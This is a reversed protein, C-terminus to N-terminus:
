EATTAMHERLQMSVDGNVASIDITGSGDGLRGTVHQEMRAEDRLIIDCHVDGRLTSLSVRCDSGDAIAVVTDGNVTRVNVNGRVPETLDLRVDGSISEVAVTKGACERLAVDGNATRANINGRIRQFVIDGSKGEMALTTVECDAVRVDGSSNQIEVIGTLGSLDVDGSHSLVKCAAGTNSVHLDGHMVKVDLPVVGALRIDLDIMIGPTDHQRLVVEHDSEDVMLTFADANERADEEDSGQIRVTASIQGHDHGGTIRVDGNPNEVRFTKGEPVNLPLMIERTEYAAGWIFAAKGKRINDIGSRLGEVGKRAGDRVQKAVDDWNVNKTVDKTVDEVWDVFGKLPDKVAGPPPPPPSDGTRPPPMDNAAENEVESEAEDPGASFADILEAADEPSLKGEQVLKMIRKIEEKM